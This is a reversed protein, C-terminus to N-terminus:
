HVIIISLSSHFFFLSFFSDWFSSFTVGVCHLFFCYYCLLVIWGLVEEGTEKKKKFLFDLCVFACKKKGLHFDSFM